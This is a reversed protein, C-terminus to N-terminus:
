PNKREARRMHMRKWANHQRSIFEVELYEDGDETGYLYSWPMGGPMIFQNKQEDVKDFM